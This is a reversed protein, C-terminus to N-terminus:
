LGMNLRTLLSQPQPIVEQRELQSLVDKNTVCCEIARRVSSDNIQESLIKQIYEPSLKTLLKMLSECAYTRVETMDDNKLLPILADAVDKAQEESLKFAIRDLQSCITQQLDSNDNKLGDVFKTCILPNMAGKCHSGLTAYIFYIRDKDFESTTPTTLLDLMRNLQLETCTNCVNTTIVDLLQIADSLNENILMSVSDLIRDIYTENCYKVFSDVVYWEFKKLMETEAGLLEKLVNNIVSNKQDDLKSAFNIMASGVSDGNDKSAADVWLPTLTELFQEEILKEPYINPPILALQDSLSMLASLIESMWYHETHTSLKTFVKLITTIVPKLINEILISQTLPELYLAQYRKVKEGAIAIYTLFPGHKWTCTKIDQEFESLGIDFLYLMTQELAVLQNKNCIDLIATARLCADRVENQNQKTHLADHIPRLFVSASDPACKKFFAVVTKQRWNVQNFAKDFCDSSKGFLNKLCLLDNLISEAQTANSKLAYADMAELCQRSFDERFGAQLKVLIDEPLVEFRPAIAKLIQYAFKYNHTKSFLNFENGPAKNIKIQSLAINKLQTLELNTFQHPDKTIMYGILNILVKSGPMCQIIVKAIDYIKKFDSM